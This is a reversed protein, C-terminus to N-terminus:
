GSVSCATEPQAAPQTVPTWEPPLSIGSGGPRITVPRRDHPHIGCYGPAPRLRAHEDAAPPAASLMFRLTWRASSRYDMSTWQPSLVDFTTGDDTRTPSRYFIAEGPRHGHLILIDAYGAAGWDKVAYIASPRRPERGLYHFLWRERRIGDLMWEVAEADGVGVAGAMEALTVRDM